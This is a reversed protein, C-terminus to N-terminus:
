LTQITRIINWLTTNWIVREEKQLRYSYKILKMIGFKKMHVLQLNSMNKLLGSVKKRMKIYCVSRWM